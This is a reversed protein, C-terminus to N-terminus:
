DYTWSIGDADLFQEVLTDYNFSLISRFPGAQEFLNKYPACKAADTPISLYQQILRRFEWGGAISLFQETSWQAHRAWEVQRRYYCPEGRERRQEAEALEWVQRRQALDLPKVKPTVGLLGREKWALDIAQWADELTVKSRRWGRIAWNLALALIAHEKE